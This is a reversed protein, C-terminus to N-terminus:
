NEEDHFNPRWLSEALWAATAAGDTRLARLTALLNAAVKATDFAYAREVLEAHPGRSACRLTAATALDVMRAVEGDPAVYLDAMAGVVDACGGVDFAVAPIGLAMSELLVRPFGEQRSPVLMCHSQGIAWAAVSNPVRGALLLGSGELSALLPGDGLVLVRVNELREELGRLLQPLRDAGRLEDLGHVYILRHHAALWDTVPGDRSLEPRIGAARRWKEVDVDNCALLLRDPSLSYRASYEQLVHPPGTMVADVGRRLVTQHLAQVVRSRWSLKTGERYGQGGSSWLVVDWGGLRGATWLLLALKWHIRVFIVDVREGRARTVLRVFSKIWSFSFSMTALDDPDGYQVAATRSLQSMVDVLDPVHAAHGTEMGIGTFLYWVRLDATPRLHRTVLLVKGHRNLEVERFGARRYIHLAGVNKPDSNVTVVGQASSILRALLTSALGEGQHRPDVALRHVHLGAATRSAILFGALEGEVDVLLSTEAKGPLELAFNEALWPADDYHRSVAHVRAELGELRGITEDTADGM